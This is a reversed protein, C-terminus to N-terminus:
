GLLVSRRRNQDFSDIIGLADVIGKGSGFGDAIEKRFFDFHTAAGRVIADLDMKSGPQEVIIGGSGRVIFGTDDPIAGEIVVPVFRILIDVIIAIALIDFAAPESDPPM